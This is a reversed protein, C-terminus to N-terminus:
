VIVEALAAEKKSVALFGIGQEKGGQKRSVLSKALHRSGRVTSSETKKM